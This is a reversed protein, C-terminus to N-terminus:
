RLRRWRSPPWVVAVPRGVIESADIPGWERSDRSNSSHDGLLFYQGPGLQLESEVGFRGQSTYVLDRAVRISRFGFRGGEGGFAARYGYSREPERNEASNLANEKYTAVLPSGPGDFGVRLANDRNELWFPTWSGVHLPFRATGITEVTSSTNIRTLTLEVTAEDVRELSAQFSDAMERLQIRVRGRPDDFRVECAFRLDNAESAGAVFEHDPGLYDDNVPDRLQLMSKETTLPIERADLLWESGAHTWLRSQEDLIVFRDELRHWRDDFVVVEDPRPESPRLRTRDVLVDGQVIRITEGALGVVRKVIVDDENKRRVVVVEQREPESRDFRVFVYEGQGEDGWLFPEMSGSDVHYVAGVFTRAVFLVLLAAAAIWAARVVLKRKVRPSLTRNSPRIPM